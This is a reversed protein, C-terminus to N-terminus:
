PHWGKREALTRRLIPLSARDKESNLQEKVEIIALLELVRVLTAEDIEMETSRSLLDEYRLGHGISGLVDIPGFDTALNLQGGGVLHSENPRLRRHPQIRYIADHDALLELDLLVPTLRGPQM